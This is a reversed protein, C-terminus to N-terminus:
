FQNLQKKLDRKLFTKFADIMLTFCLTFIVGLIIHKRVKFTKRTEEIRWLFTQTGLIPNRWSLFTQTGLIPNRWVHKM